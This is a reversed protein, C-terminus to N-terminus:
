SETREDASIFKYESNSNIIKKASLVITKNQEM